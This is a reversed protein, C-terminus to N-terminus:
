ELVSLTVCAVILDGSEGQKAISDEATYWKRAAQSMYVCSRNMCISILLNELINKARLIVLVVEEAHWWINQKSKANTTTVVLLSESASVPRMGFASSLYQVRILM